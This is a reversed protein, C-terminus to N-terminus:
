AILVLSNVTFKHLISKKEEVGSGGKRKDMMRRREEGERGEGREEAGM